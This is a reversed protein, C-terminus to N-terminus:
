IAKYVLEIWYSLKKSRDLEHIHTIDLTLRVCDGSRAPVSNCLERIRPAWAGRLTRDLIKNPAVNQSVLACVDCLDITGFARRHFKSIDHIAPFPTPFEVLATDLPSGGTLADTSHAM